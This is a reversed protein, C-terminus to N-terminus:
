LTSLTDAPLLCPRDTDHYVKMEGPLLGFVGTKVIRRIHMHKAIDGEFEIKEFGDCVPLLLPLPLLFAPIFGCWLHKKKYVWTEANDYTPNITDPKGLVKLIEAKTTPFSPPIKQLGGSDSTIFTATPPEITCEGPLYGLAGYFGCGSMTLLIFFAFIIFQIPRFM